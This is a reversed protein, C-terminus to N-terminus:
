MGGGFGRLANLMGSDVGGSYDKYGIESKYNDLHSVYSIPEDFDSGYMMRGRLADLLSLDKTNPVNLTRNIKEHHYHAYATFVYRGLKEIIELEKIDPTRLYGGNTKIEIWHQIWTQIADFIVPIDERPYRFGIRFNDDMLKISRLIHLVTYPRETSEMLSEFGNIPPHEEFHKLQETSLFSAVPMVVVFTRETFLKYLRVLDKRIFIYRDTHM